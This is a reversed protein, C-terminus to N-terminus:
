PNLLETIRVGFNEGISVVEGKAFPRGEVQVELPDRAGTNLEILSGEVLNLLRELPLAVRGVAVSVDM